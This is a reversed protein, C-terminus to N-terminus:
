KEQIKERLLRNVLEPEAKGATRKMVQGVLFGFSKEKGGKYDAVVSAHEALVQDIIPTVSDASAQRWGKAEVIQDPQDGNRFMEELVSKAIKKNIVGADIMQLMRVLDSSPVERGTEGALRRFDGMMWNSVEKGNGYQRAVSEFYDAFGSTSTLVTADYEPIGFERVLRARRAAPLEPLSERVGRIWAEDLVWPLLDPEPFYRYDHAQEKSRMSTTVGRNEDWARTEQILRGGEELVKKQREVEYSLARQVSKFSNMNKIEVKTGLKESGPPRISVNADCRLSGEEMKCDSVRVWTLIEKLETLYAYAEAPDRMDPESVIEALPVGARNYDEGTAEAEGIRVAGTAGTAMHLSKGTDEE